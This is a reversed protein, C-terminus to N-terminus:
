KWRGLAIAKLVIRSTIANGSLNKIVGTIMSTSSGSRILILNNGGSPIDADIVSVNGGSAFTQPYEISGFDYVGNGPVTASAINKEAGQIMMGNIFKIWYGNSNKGSEKIGRSFLENFNLSSM